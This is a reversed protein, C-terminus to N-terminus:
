LDGPTGYSVVHGAPVQGTEVGGTAGPELSAAPPYPIRVDPNQEPYRGVKGTKHQSANDTITM